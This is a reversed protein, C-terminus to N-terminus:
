PAREAMMLWRPGLVPDHVIARWRFGAQEFARVARENGVAVYACVALALTTGLVEERMAQLARAGVGRGRHAPSAVFLDIEWTGAPVEKPLPAGWAGADIAHAYGVAAGNAEIIRCLAAASGMAVMVEAEATAKPGWWRIVEPQALWRRITPWDADTAPRLRVEDDRRDGGASM